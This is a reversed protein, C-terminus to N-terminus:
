KSGKPHFMAKYDDYIKRVADESIDFIESVKEVSYGLDFLYHEVAVRILPIDIFKQMM